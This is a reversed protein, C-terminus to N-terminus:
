LLLNTAIDLENKTIKGQYYEYLLGAVNASRDVKIVECDAASFIAHAKTIMAKHKLTVRGKRLSIDQRKTWGYTIWGIAIISDSYVLSAGAKIAFVIATLEALNIPYDGIKTRNIEMNENVTLVEAQQGPQGNNQTSADVYYIMYISVPQKNINGHITTSTKFQLTGREAPAAATM